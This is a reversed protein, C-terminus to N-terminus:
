ESVAGDSADAADEAVAQADEVVDVPDAEVVEEVVVEAEVAAAEAAKRADEEDQQAAFDTVKQVYAKREEPSMARMRAEIAADRAGQASEAAKQALDANIQKGQEVTMEGKAVLTDVLEKGKEGTIALAGIGALFVSRFGEGIANFGDQMDTM